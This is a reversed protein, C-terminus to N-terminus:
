RTSACAGPPMRASSPAACMRTSRCAQWGIDPRPQMAPAGASVMLDAADHELDLTGGVTAHLPGAALTMRTAVAHRPGDLSADLAVAGLDPLGALSALLGHAPESVHLTAQLRTADATGTM